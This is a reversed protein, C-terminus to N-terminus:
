FCVNCNGRKPELQRRVCRLGHVRAFLMQSMCNGTKEKPILLLAKETNEEFMTKSIYAIM